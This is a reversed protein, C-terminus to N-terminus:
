KTNLSLLLFGDDFLRRCGCYVVICHLWVVQQTKGIASNYFYILSTQSFLAEYLSHVLVSQLSCRSHPKNFYLMMLWHSSTEKLIWKLHPQKRCWRFIDKIRSYLPVTYASECYFTLILVLVWQFAPAHQNLNLTFFFLWNIKTIGSVSPHENFHVTKSQKQSIYETDITRICVTLM